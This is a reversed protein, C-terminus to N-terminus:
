FVEDIQLFQEKPDTARDFDDLIICVLRLDSNADTNVNKVVYEYWLKGSYPSISTKAFLDVLKKCASSAVYKKNIIRSVKDIIKAKEDVQVGSLEDLNVNWFNEAPKGFTDDTNFFSSKLYM